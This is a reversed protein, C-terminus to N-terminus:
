SAASYARTRAVLNWVSASLLAAMSSWIMQMAPFGHVFIVGAILIASAFVAVVLPGRQLHFRADRAFGWLAILLSAIMLPWLIADRRLFSLGLTALGAVIFPTGACCLAALSAGFGGARDAISARRRPRLPETSM